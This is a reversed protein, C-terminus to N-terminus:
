KVKADVPPLVPDRPCDNRWRRTRERELWFGKVTMGSKRIINKFEGIKLDKQDTHTGPLKVVEGNDIEVYGHDTRRSPKACLYNKLFEDRAERLSIVNPFPVLSGNKMWSLWHVPCNCLALEPSLRRDKPPVQKYGTMLFSDLARNVSLREAETHQASLSSMRNVFFLHHLIQGVMECRENILKKLDQVAGLAYAGPSRKVLDLIFASTRIYFPDGRFVDLGSLGYFNAVAEEFWLSMSAQSLFKKYTRYLPKQILSEVQLCTADVKYHFLEHCYLFYLTHRYCEDVTAGTEIHIDQVLANVRPKILFIGWFGKAPQKDRHRFSKYFAIAEVGEREFEGMGSTYVKDDSIEDDIQFVPEILEDDTKEDWRTNPGLPEDDISPMRSEIAKAISVVGQSAPSIGPYEPRFSKSNRM